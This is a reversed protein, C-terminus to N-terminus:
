KSNVTLHATLTTKKKKRGVPRFRVVAAQLEHVVSSDARLSSSGAVEARIARNSQLKM